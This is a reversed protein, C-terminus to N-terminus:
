SAAGGAIASRLDALDTESPPLNGYCARNFAATAKEVLGPAFLPGLRVEFELPSEYEERLVGRREAVGLLSYYIEFAEVVGPEGDPPRLDRRVRRRRLREPLLDFLLRAADLLPDNGAIVSERAGEPYEYRGRRRRRFARALFFLAVVVVVTLVAIGAIQIIQLVAPAGEKEEIQEVEPIALNFGEAVQQELDTRFLNLLASFLWDMAAVFPYLLTSLVPAVIREITFGVVARVAGTVLPLVANEVLGAILGVLLVVLVLAGIVKPWTARKAAQESPSSLHSMALGALSSATFIFLVPYVNLDAPLAADAIAAAALAAVGIRFSTELTEEPSDSAAIRGGRWWLGVAMAAAIAARLWYTDSGLEGSLRGAWALDLGASFQSGLVLYIVVLGTFMQALYATTTSIILAQLARSVVLSSALVALVAFWDLPNSGLQLPLAAVGLIAYLWASESVAIAALVWKDQASSV